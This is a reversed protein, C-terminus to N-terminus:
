MRKVEAQRENKRAKNGRKKMREKHSKRVTNM